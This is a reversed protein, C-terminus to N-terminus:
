RSGSAIKLAMLLILRRHRANGAQEPSCYNSILGATLNGGQVSNVEWSVATNTTGTVTATFQQTALTAVTASTPSISITVQAATGHPFGGVLLMLVGVQVLAMRGAGIRLAFGSKKM